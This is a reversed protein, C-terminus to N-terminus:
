NERIDFFRIESKDVYLQEGSEISINDAIVTDVITVSGGDAYVASGKEAINNYVSSFSMHFWGHKAVIAGGIQGSANCVFESNSIYVEPNGAVYIAGGEQRARNRTFSSSVVTLLANDGYSRIAGGGRAQNRNFESDRVQVAGNNSRIAGGSVEVENNRVVSNIVTAIGEYQDIAGGYRATNQAITSNEVLLTSATSRIAGGRDANNHLIQSDLVTLSSFHANITGGLLAFNNMVSSQKLEVFSGHEALMASGSAAWGRIMHLDSIELVGGKIHFIRFRGDGSITHGRGDITLHWTITPLPETLVIDDQLEFPQKYGLVECGGQPSQRNQAIIQDALTCVSKHESESTADQASAGVSLCLLVVLLLCNAVYGYKVSMIETWRFYKYM